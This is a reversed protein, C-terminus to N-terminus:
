LVLVLVSVLRLVLGLRIGLGVSVRVMVAYVTVSFRLAVTAGDTSHFYFTVLGTCLWLAYKRLFIDTNASYVFIYLSIFCWSDSNNTKYAICYNHFTFFTFFLLDFYNSLVGCRREGSPPM